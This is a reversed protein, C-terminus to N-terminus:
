YERNSSNCYPFVGSCSAAHLPYLLDTSRSSLFLDFANMVFRTLSVVWTGELQIESMRGLWWSTNHNISILDPSSSHRLTLTTLRLWTPIISTRLYATSPLRYLTSPLSHPSFWHIITTTTTVTLTTITPPNCM